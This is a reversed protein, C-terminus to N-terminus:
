GRKRCILYCSLGPLRLHAKALFRSVALDLDLLDECLRTELRQAHWCSVQTRRLPLVLHLKELLWQVTRVWFGSLWLYGGELAALDAAAAARKLQGFRYRRHHGLLRDHSCFLFSFAPVTILFYANSDVLPHGVISRLFSVDDPVHELVDLILVLGAPGAERDLLAMSPVLHLKGGNGAIHPM